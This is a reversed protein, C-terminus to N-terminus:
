QLLAIDAVQLFLSRLQNLLLIRNERRAKDETMVMVKDFFEDIPQRLEALQLLIEGYKGAQYLAEVVKGKANLQRALEKETMTEFLNPDITKASLTDVYKAIINSVRKNAIALSQAEAMKKFAQVARIREHIDLPNNLDLAIVASFVDIAIGQEQYWARLREKLFNLIPAPDKVKLSPYQTIAFEVLPKLDLNINNEILIRLLGIGARRLGYPDKDGTPLADIGFIGALLDIRDAIALAQGIDTKPLEDGAFRPKYQEVLAKAVEEGEGEHIAYYYGMVGQLEPFEGVMSTTLDAKALWGARKAKEEDAYMNKAIFACLHSLRKTKDFLTGLKEQFVIGKLREVRHALSEKKDSAYFFQADSLRARLVRENGHIIREPEHSEINSIAVFYPLLHDEKDVVPFYRQYDALASVLVEPPLSLFEADFHGALAVPWEVLGTVEDLLDNNIVVTAPMKTKLAAGCKLSEERIRERREDFDAIVYGETKLLSEYASAHPITMWDPALFRHGRTVRGSRCGLIATDIVQDGYLMLVSHVPRIFQVDVDGWRMRKPIPLLTLAQTVITPMIQAVTEGPLTQNFGVWEGQPNKIQILDAVSVGCSRAFGECAKTPRGEKDFAAQLSPGKREIHQEKQASQLQTVMVALRRPTAFFKIEKYSLDAKKLQEKIHVAFANALVLLSKPPLEECGIEVLFDDYNM